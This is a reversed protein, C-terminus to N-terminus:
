PTDDKLHDPIKNGANKPKSKKKNRQKIPKVDIVQASVRDTKSKELLKRASESFVFGETEAFDEVETFHESPVCILGDVYKAVTIRMIKSYWEEGRPYSFTFWNSYAGKVIVRIMYQPEVQFKGLIIKRRVEECDVQVPIGELLTRYGIEAARDVIVSEEASREWAQRTWEYGMSKVLLRFEEVKEPLFISILNKGVSIRAITETLLNKPRIVVPPIITKGHNPHITDLAISVIQSLEDPTYADFIELQRDPLRIQIRRKELTKPKRPM